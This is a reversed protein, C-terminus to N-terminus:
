HMRNDRNSCNENSQVDDFHTSPTYGWVLPGGGTDRCLLNDYVGQQTAVCLPTYGEHSPYVGEQTAVCLIIGGRNYAGGTDRCM